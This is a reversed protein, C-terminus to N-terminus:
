LIGKVFTNISSEIYAASEIPSLESGFSAKLFVFGFNMSLFMMALEEPDARRIKGQEKMEVFYEKLAKKFTQPIKLIGKATYPYLEPTRLGTSVKVMRPTVKQMYVESFRTLDGLMDGSYGEFDEPKLDPNWEPKEMAALIIEKKGKFKRFITCENIGARRAIDKTTTNSYGKEMVLEMTAKIIKEQTDDLM